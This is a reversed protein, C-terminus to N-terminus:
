PHRYRLIKSTPFATCDRQNPRLSGQVVRRAQRTKSIDTNTKFNLTTLVVSLAFLYIFVLQSLRSHVYDFAWTGSRLHACLPHGLDNSKTIHRLPAVWGELGCYVLLGLGPIDYAGINGGTM